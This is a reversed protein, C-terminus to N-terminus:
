DCRTDEGEGFSQLRHDLDGTAVAVADRNLAVDEPGVGQADPIDQAQAAIMLVKAIMRRALVDVVHVGYLEDRRQLHHAILLGKEATILDLVALLPRESLRLDEDTRRRIGEAIGELEADDSERLLRVCAGIEDLGLADVVHIPELLPHLHDAFPLEM